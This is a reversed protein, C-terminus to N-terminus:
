VGPNARKWVETPTLLDSRATTPDDTRPTLGASAATKKGTPSPSPKGPHQRSQDENGNTAPMPSPPAVQFDRPWPPPRRYVHVRPLSPSPISKAEFFQQLHRAPIRGVM